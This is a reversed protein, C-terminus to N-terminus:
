KKFLNFNPNKKKYLAYFIFVTVLEVVFVGIGGELGFHGGSIISNGSLEFQLVTPGMSMGSVLIGYINGQAFNWMSHAGSAVWLDDFYVAMCSFALGALCLNIMPLLTIGPNGLHLLAFYFSNFWISFFLSRKRSLGKMMFGRCMLEEEFGQFLFGIFFLFLLFPRDFVFGIYKAGGLVYTILLSLSLTVFGIFLGFIYRGLVNKKTLGLSELTFGDKKLAIYFIVLSTLITTYLSLLMSISSDLVLDGLIFTTPILVIFQLVGGILMAIGIMLCYYAIDMENKIKDFM